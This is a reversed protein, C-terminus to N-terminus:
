KKFPSPKKDSVLEALLEGRQQTRTNSLEILAPLDLKLCENAANDIM